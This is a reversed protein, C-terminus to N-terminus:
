WSAKFNQIFQQYTKIKYTEEAFFKLPAELETPKLFGAVPAPQSMLSPLLVTTPYSMQGGMLYVALENSKYAENYAYHKGNWDFADKTEADLKVAYFHENIYNAVKTNRYTEKDMVKCWGCWSTYVDVIIPRPAKNFATHMEDITMWQVKDRVRLRFSAAIFFLLIITFYYTVKKM